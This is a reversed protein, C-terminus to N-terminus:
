GTMPPLLKTVSYVSLKKKFLNYKKKDDTMTVTKCCIYIYLVIDNKIHTYHSDNNVRFLYGM